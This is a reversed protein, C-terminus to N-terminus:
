EKKTSRKTATKSSSKTSRKTTTKKTGKSDKEIIELCEELTLNEAVKSKPIKFNKRGQKIYAGYQGNLIQIKEKEFDKIL